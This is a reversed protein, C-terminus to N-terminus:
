DDGVETIVGRRVLSPGRGRDARREDPSRRTPRVPRDTLVRSREWRRRPSAAEGTARSSLPRERAACTVRSPRYSQAARAGRRVVAGGREVVVALRQDRGGGPLGDEIDAPMLIRPVRSGPSSRGAQDDFHKAEVILKAALALLHRTELLQELLRQLAIGLEVAAGLPHQPLRPHQRPCKAGVFTAHGLRVRAVLMRQPFTQHGRRRGRREPAHDDGDGVPNDLGATQADGVEVQECPQGVQCRNVHNGGVPNERGSKM